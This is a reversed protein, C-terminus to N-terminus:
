KIYRMIEKHLINALGLSISLSARFVAEGLRELGHRGLLVRLQKLVKLLLETTSSDGRLLLEKVEVALHKSEERSTLIELEDPVVEQGIVRDLDSLHM